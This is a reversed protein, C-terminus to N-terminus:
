HYLSTRGLGENKSDILIGSHCSRRRDKSCIPFIMPLSLCFIVCSGFSFVVLVRSSFRIQLRIPEENFAIISSILSGAVVTCLGKWYTAVEKRLSVAVILISYQLSVNFSKLISEPVNGQNLFLIYM